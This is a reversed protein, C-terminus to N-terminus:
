RISKAEKQTKKQFKDIELIARYWNKKQDQSLFILEYIYVFIM